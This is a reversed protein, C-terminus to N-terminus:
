LTLEDLSARIGDLRRRLTGDYLVGDMEVRIGGILSPQLEFEPSIEKGSRRALASVIRKRESDSLATASTIRAVAIGNKEHFLRKYESLADCLERAYGLSVMMRLFRLLYPHAGEFAEAIAGEREGRTIEPSCLLRIYSPTESLLKRVTETEALLERSIGEEAALEYLAGGYERSVDNM